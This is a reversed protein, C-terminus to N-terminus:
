DKKFEFLPVVATENNPRYLGVKTQEWGENRLRSHMNDYPNISLYPLFNYNDHVVLKDSVYRFYDTYRKNYENDSLALTKIYKAYVEKKGQLHRSIHRSFTFENDLVDYPKAMPDIADVLNLFFSDYQLYDAESCVTYIRGNYSAYTFSQEGWAFDTTELTLIDSHLIFCIDHQKLFEKLRITMPWTLSTPDTVIFKLRYVPMKNHLAELQGLIKDFDMKALWTDSFSIENVGKPCNIENMLIDYGRVFANDTLSGFQMLSSHDQYWKYLKPHKHKLFYLDDNTAVVKYATFLNIWKDSMEQTIEEPIFRAFESKDKEFYKDVYCVHCGAYCNYRRLMSFVLEEKVPIVNDENLFYKKFDPNEVVFKRRHDFTHITMNDNIWNYISHARQKATYNIALKMDSYFKVCTEKPEVDFMKYLYKIGCQPRSPCDVCKNNILTNDKKNNYPYFVPEYGKEKLSITSRDFWKGVAFETRKYEVFDYEPYIYGDPSLIIKYHKGAYNKDIKTECGDIMVQMDYNHLTNVFKILNDHFNDLDVQDFFDQFKQQGRRHRLPILNIKKVGARKSTELINDLLKLSFSHEETLPMVFQWSLQVGLEACLDGVAGIDVYERNEEQYLFDYSISFNLYDRWKEVFWRNEVILSANTTIVLKLDYTDLYHKIRDLVQDMRKVYLFPEGGHLAILRINLASEKYIQHFFNELENLNSHSFNQGGIDESIYDRDCYTCDFNCTNGLYISILSCESLTETYNM